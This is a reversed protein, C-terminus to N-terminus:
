SIRGTSDQVVCTANLVITVQTPRNIVVGIKGQLFHGSVFTVGTDSVQMNIWMCKIVPKIIIVREAHKVIIPLGGLIFKCTNISAQDPSYEKCCKNNVHQCNSSMKQHGNGLASAVM